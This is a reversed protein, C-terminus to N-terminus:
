RPPPNGAGDNGPEEKWGRLALEELETFEAPVQGTRHM